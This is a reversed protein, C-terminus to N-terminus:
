CFSVDSIDNFINTLAWEAKLNCSNQESPVIITYYLTSM